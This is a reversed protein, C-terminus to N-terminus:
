GGDHQQRLDFGHKLLLEVSHPSLDWAPSRYGRAYHGTLKRIQENARVLGEEEQERTMMAPPVHTWGHHGIEHGADFVEKCRDPYTELTHGPVFWSIRIRAEEAAGPHAAYRRGRRIRRAIGAHAFDHRAFHLRVDRRLRLDLLGSLRAM